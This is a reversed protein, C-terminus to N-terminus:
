ESLSVTITLLVDHFLAIVAGVAFQWEFRFWIYLLVMSMALVIALIGKERLEGSVKSGVVDQGRVTFEGVSDALAGNVAKLANQQAMAGEEGEAQLPIGIRVYEHGVGSTEPPTILQFTAGGLDLAGVATRIVNLDPQAGTDIELVTGGTFDIGYNLGKDLFLFVSAILALISLAAAIIRMSIFPVKPEKPMFKVLSIDRM